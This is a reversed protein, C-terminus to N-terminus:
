AHPVIGLDFLWREMGWRQKDHKPSQNQIRANIWLFRKRDASFLHLFLDLLYSYSCNLKTTTTTRTGIVFVPSNAM